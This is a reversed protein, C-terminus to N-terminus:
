RGGFRYERYRQAAEAMTIKGAEVMAALDRAVAQDPTQLSAIPGLAALPDQATDVDVFPSGTAPPATPSVSPEPAQRSRLVDALGGGASGFSGGFLQSGLGTASRLVDAM